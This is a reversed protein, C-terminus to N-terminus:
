KKFKRKCGVLGVLGTCLLLMTTPEPVPAPSEVRFDFWTNSDSQMYGGHTYASKLDSASFLSKNLILQVMLFNGEGYINGVGYANAAWQGNINVPNINSSDDMPSIAFEGVNTGNVYLTSKQGSYDYTGALWVLDTNNIATDTASAEIWGPARHWAYMTGTEPSVRLDFDGCLDAWAKGRMFVRYNAVQDSKIITMWSWDSQYTFGAIGGVTKVYENDGSLHLANFGGITTIDGADVASGLTLERNYSSFDAVEYLGVPVAYAENVLLFSVVTIVAIVFIKSMVSRKLM